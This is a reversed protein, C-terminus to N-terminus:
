TLLQTRAPCRPESATMLATLRGLCLGIVLRPMLWQVAGCRVPDGNRVQQSRALAVHGHHRPLVRWNLTGGRDHLLELHTPREQLTLTLTFGLQDPSMKKSDIRIYTETARGATRIV